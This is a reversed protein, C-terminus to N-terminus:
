LKLKFSNEAANNYHVFNRFCEYKKYFDTKLWFYSYKQFLRLESCCRPRFNTLVPIKVLIKAFVRIKTWFHWKKPWFLRIKGFKWPRRRGFHANTTLKKVSKPPAHGRMPALGGVADRINIYSIDFANISGQQITVIVKWVGTRVNELIGKWVIM